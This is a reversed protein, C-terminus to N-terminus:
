KVVDVCAYERLFSTKKVALSLEKKVLKAQQGWNRARRNAHADSIHNIAVLHNRAFADVRSSFGRCQKAHLIKRM